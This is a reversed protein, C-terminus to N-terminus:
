KTLDTAEEKITKKVERRGATKQGECEPRRILAIAAL